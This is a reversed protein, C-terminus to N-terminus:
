IPRPDLLFAIEELNPPALDDTVSSAEARRSALVAIRDDISGAAHILTTAPGAERAPGVAQELASLSFPYDLVIVHDFHSLVPPQRDFRIISVTDDAPPPPSAPDVLRTPLPRLLSALLTAARKSRTLVAVHQGLAATTRVLTAAASLKPSLAHAPGATVLDCVEALATAPPVHLLRNSADDLALLQSETIQVVKTSSRRFPPPASGPTSFSRRSLYHDVHEAARRESDPPYRVAVALDSRFEGPRLLEMIALQESLDVPWTSEIAIRYTDRLGALAQLAPAAARAEPSNPADFIISLASHPAREAALTAYTIIQADAHSSSTSYSHGLLDLHRQWAWIHAPATIILAPWADLCDIAALSVIRRGLGSEWAVARAQYTCLSTVLHELDAQAHDSLEIPLVPNRPPTDPPPLPDLVFGIQDALVSAAALPLGFHTADIRFLGPLPSAEVLQPRPATIELYGDLNLTARALVKPLRVLSDLLDWARGTAVFPAELAVLAAAAEADLGTSWDDGGYSWELVLEGYADVTLTAPTADTSPRSALHLLPALSTTPRLQVEDPLRALAALSRVPFCIGLHPRIELQLGQDALVAAAEDDTVPPDPTALVWLGALELYISMPKIPRTFGLRLQTPQDPMSSITHLNERQALM